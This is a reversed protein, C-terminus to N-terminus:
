TELTSHPELNVLSFRGLFQLDEEKHSVLIMGNQPREEVWRQLSKMVHAQSQTDLYATPEDLMLVRPGTLLARILSVRAAEGGSLTSANQFLLKDSLGLQEMLYRYETEPVSKKKRRFALAFPLLLNDQVTGPFM